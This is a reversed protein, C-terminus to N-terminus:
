RLNDILVCLLVQKTLSTESSYVLSPMVLSSLKHSEFINVQAVLTLM